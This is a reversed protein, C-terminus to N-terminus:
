CPVLMVPLCYYGQPAKGGDPWKIKYDIGTGSWQIKLHNTQKINFM